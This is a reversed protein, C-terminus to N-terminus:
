FEYSVGILRKVRKKPKDTNYEPKDVLTNIDENYKRNIAEVESIFKDRVDNSKFEKNITRGFCEIELEYNIKLNVYEDNLDIICNDVLIRNNGMLLIDSSVFPIIIDGNTDMLM